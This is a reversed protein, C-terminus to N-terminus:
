YHSQSYRPYAGLRFLERQTAKPLVRATAIMTYYLMKLHPMPVIIKIYNLIYLSRSLKLNIYNLHSSWYLKDDIIIGLLKCSTVRKIKATGVIIEKNIDVQALESSLFLLYNSKNVNLSLKNETFWDALNVLDM